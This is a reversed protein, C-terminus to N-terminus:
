ALGMRVAWEQPSAVLPERDGVDVVEASAEEDPKEVPALREVFVRGGSYRHRSACISVAQEASAGAYMAGLAMEWAGGIAQPQDKSVPHSRGGYAIKWVDGDPEIWIASFEAKEDLALFEVTAAVREVLSSTVMFWSQFSHADSSVGSAAGLAGDFSRVIKRKDEQVLVDIQWSSGDAAIVGSKV